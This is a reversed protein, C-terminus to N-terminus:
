ELWKLKGRVNLKDLLISFEEKNLKERFLKYLFRADEIDKDSTLEEDPGKGALLLKFAIQMEIPSILIEGTKSIVKIRNEYSYKDLDTKMIKFEMNPIPKKVRSFRIAHEKLMNFAEKSDSTNLCEFGSKNIKEWM